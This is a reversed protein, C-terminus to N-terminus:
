RRSAQVIDQIATVVREVDTDQMRPYIPLSILGAYVQEAVPFDGPQFGFAERYYPHLHIPIFHLSTGIGRQRLEDIFGTLFAVM